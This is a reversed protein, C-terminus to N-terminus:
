KSFTNLNETKKLDLEAQDIQLYNTLLKKKKKDLKEQSKNVFTSTTIHNNLKVVSFRPSKQYSLLLSLKFSSWYYNKITISMNMM